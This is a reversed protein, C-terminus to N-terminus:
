SGDPKRSWHEAMRANAEDLSLKMVDSEPVHAVHILQYVLGVPLSGAPAMDPAHGRNPLQKNKVCAWFEDETVDLQDRLILRWLGPGYTTNDAPRSVRTRLRRGDPLPLEYTIHHRVKAGRADHVAEWRETICFRNHDARTGASM